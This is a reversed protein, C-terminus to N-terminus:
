AGARLRVIGRSHGAADPLAQQARAGCAGGLTGSCLSTNHLPSLALLAPAAHEPGLSWRGASRLANLHKKQVYRLGLSAASRSPAWRRRNPCAPASTSGGSELGPLCRSPGARSCSRGGCLRAPSPSGSSGSRQTSGLVSVPNLAPLSAQCQDDRVGLLQCCFPGVAAAAPASPSTSLLPRRQPLRPLHQCGQTGVGPVVKGPALWDRTCHHWVATGRQSM